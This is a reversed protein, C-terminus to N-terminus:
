FLQSLGEKFDKSKKPLYWMFSKTIIEELLIHLNWIEKRRFNTICIHIKFLTKSTPILAVQCIITMRKIM